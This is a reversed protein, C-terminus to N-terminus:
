PLDVPETCVVAQASAFAEVHSALADVGEPLGDRRTVEVEADPGTPLAGVCFRVRDPDSPAEQGVAAYPGRDALPLPVRLAGGASAGPALDTGGVTPQEALAVDDPRPLARQAIEAVGDGADLAAWGESTLRTGEGDPAEMLDLLVIPAEGENTAAYTIAIADDTVEVDADLELTM